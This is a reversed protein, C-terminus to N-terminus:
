CDKGSVQFFGREYIKNNHVMKKLNFSKPRNNFADNKYLKFVLDMDNIVITCNTPGFPFMAIPGYNIALSRFFAEGNMIQFSCGFFPWGIPGPPYRM